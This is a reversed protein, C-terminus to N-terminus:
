KGEPLKLGELEFTREVCGNGPAERGLARVLEDVRKRLGLVHIKPMLESTAMLGQDLCRKGRYMQAANVAYKRYIEVIPIGAQWEQLV